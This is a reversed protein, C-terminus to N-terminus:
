ILRKFLTKGGFRTEFSSGQASCIEVLFKGFFGREM